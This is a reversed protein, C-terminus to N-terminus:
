WRYQAPPKGQRDSIIPEALTPEEPGEEVAELTLDMEWNDGFDYRYHLAQGVRLPLDGVRVESAWPDEEMYPHNAVQEAGFRDQYSFQYLHDHDFRLARLIADSLAELTHADSLTIRCAFRGLKLKFQYRGPCYSAESVALTHQWNPFYPALLPQWVGVPITGKEDRAYYVEDDLFYRNFLLALLAQGFPTPQLREIQWGQGEVPEGHQIDLFGFLELLALNYWGPLYPWAFLNEPSAGEDPLEAFFEACLHFHEPHDWVRMARENIIEPSGRLLWSELLSGYREAPNLRQWAALVAEDVVLRNGEIVTLGSARLLLYLGNLPPYSRQQPRSLGFQLPHGLEENMPRLAALPLQGTATLHPPHEGLYALLAEIDRLLTGPEQLTIAQHRLIQAHADTFVPRDGFTSRM